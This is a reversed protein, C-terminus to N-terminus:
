AVEVAVVDAPMPVVRGSEVHELHVSRGDYVVIGEASQGASGTLKVAWGNLLSWLTDTSADPDFTIAPLGTV